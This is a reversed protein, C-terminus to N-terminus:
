KKKSIKLYNIVNIDYYFMFFISFNEKSLIFNIESKDKFPLQIVNNNLKREIYNRKKAIYGLYIQFRDDLALDNALEICIKEAGGSISNLHESFLLIKYKVRGLKNSKIPTIKKTYKLFYINKIYKISVLHIM